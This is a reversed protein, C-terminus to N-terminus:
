KPVALWIVVVCDLVNPPVNAFGYLGLSRALNQLLAVLGVCGLGVSFSQCGFSLFLLAAALLPKAYHRTVHKTHVNTSFKLQTSRTLNQATFGGSRLAV